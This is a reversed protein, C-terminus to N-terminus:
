SVVYGEIVELTEMPLGLALGLNLWRGRVGWLAASAERLTLSGTYFCMVLLSMWVVNICTFAISGHEM